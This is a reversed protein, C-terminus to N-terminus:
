EVLQAWSLGASILSSEGPRTRSPYLTGPLGSRLSAWLAWPLLGRPRGPGSSRDGPVGGLAELVTRDAEGRRHTARAPRADAQRYLQDFDAPPM